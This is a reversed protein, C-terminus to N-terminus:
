AQKAAASEGVDGLDIHTTSRKAELSTELAEEFEPSAIVRLVDPEIERPLRFRLGEEGNQWERSNTM